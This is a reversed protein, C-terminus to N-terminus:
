VRTYRRKPLRPVQQNADEPDFSAGDNLQRPAIFFLVLLFALSLGILMGDPSVIQRTFPLEGIM